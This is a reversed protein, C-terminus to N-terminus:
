EGTGSRPREIMRDLLHVLLACFGFFAVIALVALVDAMVLVM